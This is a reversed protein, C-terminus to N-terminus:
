YPRMWGGASGLLTWLIMRWLYPSYPRAKMAQVAYKIALWRKRQEMFTEAYWLDRKMMPCPSGIAQAIIPRLVHFVDYIQRERDQIRAGTWVGNAHRRYYGMIKDIYGAPGRLCHLLHTMWDMCYLNKANVPFAKLIGSRYVVSCTQMFNQYILDEVGITKKCGEPPYLYPPQSDDDWKCLVRHFCMSWTPNGDMADIQTALKNIDTWYDDGELVAIYQGRCQQFVDMWNAAIGMKSSRGLVRVVGPHKGQYKMLIDLTRDTSL